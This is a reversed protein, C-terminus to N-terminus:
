IDDIIIRDLNWYMEGYFFIKCKANVYDYMQCSKGYM